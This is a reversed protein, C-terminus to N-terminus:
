TPPDHPAPPKKIVVREREDTKPKFRKHESDAWQDAVKWWWLTFPIGIIIILAMVAWVLPSLSKQAATDVALLSISASSLM